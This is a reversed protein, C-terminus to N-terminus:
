INYKEIKIFESSKSYKQEIFNFRKIDLNNLFKCYYKYSCTINTVNELYQSDIFMDYDFALELTKLTSPFQHYPLIYDYWKGIKLHVIKKPLVDKLNENYGDAFELFEVSEPIIHKM